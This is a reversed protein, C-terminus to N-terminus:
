VSHSSSRVLRILIPGYEEDRKLRERIVDYRRAVDESTQAVGRKIKRAASALAQLSWAAQTDSSPFTDFFCIKALVLPIAKRVVSKVEHNQATLNYRGSPGPILQSYSPWIGGGHSGEPILQNGDSGQNGTTISRCARPTNDGLTGNMVPSQSPALQLVNMAYLSLRVQNETEVQFRSNRTTSQNQSLTLLTLRRWVCLVCTSVHIKIVDSSKSM